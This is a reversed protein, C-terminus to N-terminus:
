AMDDRRSERFEDFDRINLDFFPNEFDIVRPERGTIAGELVLVLLYVTLTTVLVSYRNRLILQRIQNM